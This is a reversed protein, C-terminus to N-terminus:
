QLVFRFTLVGWQSQQPLNRPLASFRWSRITKQVENDIEASGSKFLFFIQGVSGDPRVEFRVKVRANYNQTLQPLPQVLASRQIDGDWELEYPASKDKDTGKGEAADPRSGRGSVAGSVPAGETSQDNKQAKTEAAEAQKQEEAPKKTPDKEKAENKQIIDESEVQANEPSDVPKVPATNTKQDPNETKQPQEQEIEQQSPQQRQRQNDAQIPARQAPSGSKFEGLSVEIFAARQQQKDPLMYWFAFGAFVAHILVTAAFAAINERDFLM